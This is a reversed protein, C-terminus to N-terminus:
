RAGRMLWEVQESLHNRDVRATARRVLDDVESWRKRTERLDAEATERAKVAETSPRSQEPQDNAHSHRFLSM